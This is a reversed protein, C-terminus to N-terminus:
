KGKKVCWLSDLFWNKDDYFHNEIRFGTINALKEVDALTYKFSHEVFIPEWREFHFTKELNEIYVDQDELSILYSEMAGTKINYPEYHKFKTVDFNGGLDRNIRELLNLNFKATVGHSDNYAAVMQDIDKRLDFGILVFDGYNLSSWLSFIFNVADQFNFNGINSGLFLVLNHKGNKQQKIKDLADFYDAVLGKTDLGPIELNLADVLGQMADESIDVPIYTFKRKDEMLQKLLVKTKAGNGAGLEILNFPLSKLMESIQKKSNELSSFESAVLYYEDLDMIREYLESGAKDYM